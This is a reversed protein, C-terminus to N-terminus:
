RASRTEEFSSQLWNQEKGLIRPSEHVQCEAKQKLKLMYRKIFPSSKENLDKQDIAEVSEFKLKDINNLQRHQM